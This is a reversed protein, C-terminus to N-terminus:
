PSLGGVGLIGCPYSGRFGLQHSGGLVVSSLGQDPSRWGVERRRGRFQAVSSPWAEPELGHEEPNLNLDRRRGLPRDSVWAARAGGWAQVFGTGVM